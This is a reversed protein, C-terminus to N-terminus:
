AFSCFDICIDISCLKFFGQFQPMRSGKRPAKAAFLRKLESQVAAGRCQNVAALTLRAGSDGSRGLLM